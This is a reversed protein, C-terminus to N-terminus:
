DKKYSHQQVLGTGAKDFVIVLRKGGGFPVGLWEITKSGSYIWITGGELVKTPEGLALIVDEKTTKGDVITEAEAQSVQVGSKASKPIISCGQIYIIVAFSLSIVSLFKIKM